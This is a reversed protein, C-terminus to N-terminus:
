PSRRRTCPRWRTTSRRSPRADRDEDDDDDGDRTRGSAEEKRARLALDNAEALAEVRERLVDRRGIRLVRLQVLLDLGLADGELLLALGELVAERRQARGVLASALRLEGRLVVETTLRLERAVRVVLVLALEDGVGVVDLLEGLDLVLEVRDTRRHTLVLRCRLDRPGVERARLLAPRPLLARQLLLEGVNALPADRERKGGGGRPRQREWLSCYASARVVGSLHSSSL